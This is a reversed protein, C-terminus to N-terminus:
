IKKQICGLSFFNTYKLGELSGPQSINMIPMGYNGDQNGLQSVPIYNTVGMTRLRTVLDPQNIDLIPIVLPISPNM